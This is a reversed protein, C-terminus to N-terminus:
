AGGFTGVPGTKWTLWPGMGSAVWTNYATHGTVIPYGAGPSTMWGNGPINFLPVGSAGAFTYVGHSTYVSGVPMSLQAISTNFLAGLSVTSFLVRLLGFNHLRM